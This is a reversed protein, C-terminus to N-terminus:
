ATFKKMGGMIIKDPGANISLISQRLGDKFVTKLHEEGTTAKNIM